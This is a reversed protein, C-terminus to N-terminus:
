ICLHWFYVFVCLGFIMLLIGHHNLVITLNDTHTSIISWLYIHLGLIKVDMNSNLNIFCQDKEELWAWLSGCFFSLSFMCLFCDWFDKQLLSLHIYTFFRAMLLCNKLCLIAWWLPQFGIFYIWRYIVKFYSFLKFQNSFLLYL